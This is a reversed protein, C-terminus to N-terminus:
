KELVLDEMGQKVLRLLFLTRVIFLITDGHVYKGYNDKRLPKYYM